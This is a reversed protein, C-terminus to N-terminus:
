AMQVWYRVAEVAAEAAIKRDLDVSLPLLQLATAPAKREQLHGVLLELIDADRAAVSM